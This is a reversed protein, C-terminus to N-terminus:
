VAALLRVAVILVLTATGFQLVRPPLVAVGLRSGVSGGIVVGAVLPAYLWLDLNSAAGKSLQGALGALSNVLIFASATGAIERGSGWRLLYLMPALFIGGGIGVIGSALGIAGGVLPAAAAGALLHPAPLAGIPRARYPAFPATFAASLAAPRLQTRWRFRHRLAQHSAEQRPVQPESSGGSVPIDRTPVVLGRLMLLGSGLLTIGLLLLFAERSVALSGGLWACPVSAVFFPWARGWPLHGARAFCWAGSAVVVINCVLSVVPVLRYDVGGLVLLVTYTSGGGFGISAYLLATLAFAFALIM